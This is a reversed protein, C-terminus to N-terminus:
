GPPGVDAREAGCEPCRAVDDPLGLLCYGCPCFLTPYFSVIARTVDRRAYARRVAEGVVIAGGAVAPPRTWPPLPAGWAFLVSWAAKAVLGGIGMAAFTAIRGPWRALSGLARDAIHNLRANPQEAMGPYELLLRRIFARERAHRGIVWFWGEMRLGVMVKCWAWLAAERALSFANAVRAM